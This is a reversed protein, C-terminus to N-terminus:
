KLDRLPEITISGQESKDDGRVLERVGIKQGDPLNKGDWLTILM